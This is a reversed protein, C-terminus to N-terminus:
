FEAPGTQGVFLTDSPNEGFRARYDAAFRGTNKFGFSFAVEKVLGIREERDLLRERASTLRYARLLEYPPCGYIEVFCRHLWAMGVGSAECLDTLSPLNSATLSIGELSARVIGLAGKRSPDRQRFFGGFGNLFLVFKDFFDNEVSKPLFLRRDPLGPDSASRMAEAILRHLWSGRDDGLALRGDNFQIMTDNNGTLARISRELRSRRLGILVTDRGEGTTAYGDPGGSLFIDNRDALLGNFKYEGRWRLPVMVSLWDPSPVAHGALRPDVRLRLFILDKGCVRQSQLRADGRDLQATFTSLVPLDAVHDAYRLLSVFRRAGFEHDPDEM